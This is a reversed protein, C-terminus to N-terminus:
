KVLGDIHSSPSRPLQATAGSRWGRRSQGGSPLQWKVVRDIFIGGSGVELGEGGLFVLLRGRENGVSIWEDLAGGGDDSEMSICGKRSNRRFSVM